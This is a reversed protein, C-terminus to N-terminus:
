GLEFFCKRLDGFVIFLVMLSVFYDRDIAVPIIDFMENRIMWTTRYDFFKDPCVNSGTEIANMAMGVLDQTFTGWDGLQLWVFIGDPILLDVGIVPIEPM